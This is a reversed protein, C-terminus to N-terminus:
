FQATKYYELIHPTVHYGKPRDDSQAAPREEEPAAAAGGAIAVAAAGGGVLMGKLFERRKENTREDNM